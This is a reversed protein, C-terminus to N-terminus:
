MLSMGKAHPTRLQVFSNAGCNHRLARADRRAAPRLASTNKPRVMYRFEIICAYRKGDSNRHLSEPLTKPLSEQLKEHLTKPLTKPLSIKIM